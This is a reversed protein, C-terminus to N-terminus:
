PHCDPDVCGEKACKTQHGPIVCAAHCAPSCGMLKHFAKPLHEFTDFTCLSKCRACTHWCNIGLCTAQPAGPPLACEETSVTLILVTAIV